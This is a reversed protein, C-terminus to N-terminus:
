SFSADSELVLHREETMDQPKCISASGSVGMESACLSSLEDM